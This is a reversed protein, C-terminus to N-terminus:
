RGPVIHGRLKCVDAYVPEEPLAGDFMMSRLIQVVASCSESYAIPVYRELLGLDLAGSGSFLTLAGAATVDGLACSRMSKPNLQKRLTWGRPMGMLWEEFTLLVVLKAQWEAGVVARHKEDFHLM